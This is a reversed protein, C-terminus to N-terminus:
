CKSSFFSNELSAVFARQQEFSMFALPNRMLADADAHAMGKLAAVVYVTAYWTLQRYQAQGPDFKTM